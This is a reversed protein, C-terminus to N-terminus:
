KDSGFGLAARLNANVTANREAETPKSENGDSKNSNTSVTVTRHASPVTPKSAFEPHEKLYTEVATKNAKEDEGLNLTKSDIDMKVYNFYKENVGLGVVKAKLDANAKETKYGDNETKLTEYDKTQEKLSDYDSQLQKKDAEVRDFKDKAVYGGDKLNVMNKGALFSNVEELTVGEHYASGMLNKIHEM